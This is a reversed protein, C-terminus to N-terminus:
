TGRLPYLTKPAHRFPFSAIDLAAPGPADIDIIERLLPLFAARFHNKAKVCYVSLDELAIGHIDLLGPDNPSKSRSSVIVRVNEGGPTGALSLLATPGFNVPVGRLMPGRNRFQGDTLREVRGRIRVPPGFDPSLRGGLTGEIEGGVGVQQARAVLGPDAFFAFLVPVAPAADLLAQLMAPTDGIGGSGPNDGSDTVAVPFAPAALASAIGEAAGPLRIYFRDRRARLEALLAAAAREAAPATEAYVM